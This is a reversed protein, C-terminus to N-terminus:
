TGSCVAAMMSLNVPITVRVTEGPGLMVDRTVCRAGLTLDFQMRVPDRAAMPVNFTRSANGRVEGLRQRAGNIFLSVRAVDMQDNRITLTLVQSQDGDFPSPTSASTGGGGGCGVVLLAVALPALLKKGSGVDFM